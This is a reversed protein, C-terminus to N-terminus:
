IRARSIHKDSFTVEVKMSHSLNQVDHNSEIMDYDIEWWVKM